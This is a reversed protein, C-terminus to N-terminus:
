PIVWQGDWGGNEWHYAARQHGEQHLHLLEVQGVQCVVVMFHDFAYETDELQMNDSWHNPLGTMDTDVPSGPALTSAYSKRGQVPLKEWYQRCVQDTRHCEAEGYMRMQVKKRADWFLWSLRPSQELEQTKASRADTFFILKRGPMDVERLVVTRLEAQGEGLTGIVPTQYDGKRKIAAKALLHWCDHLMEDLEEFRNM